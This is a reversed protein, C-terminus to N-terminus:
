VIIYFNICVRNHVFEYLNIRFQLKLFDLGVSLIRMKSFNCFELFKYLWKVWIQVFEHFNRCIRLFLVGMLYLKNLFQVEGIAALAFSLNQKTIQIKIRLPELEMLRYHTQKTSSKQSPNPILSWLVSWGCDCAKQITKFLWPLCDAFLLRRLTYWNNNRITEGQFLSM